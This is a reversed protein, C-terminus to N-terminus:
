SRDLGKLSACHKGRLVSPLSRLLWISARGVHVLDAFKGTLLARISRVPMELAFTSVIILLGSALGFHKLTYLFRSEISYYLRRAQIKRSSGGGIHHAEIESLYLLEKGQARVRRSLDLDELYVFFREDFGSLSRFLDRSMLYYAGIVHDVAQTSDHEWELMGRGRFGPWWREMGLMSGIMGKITPFRACSRQVLGDEGLLRIGVVGVSPRSELAEISAKVTGSPVQTDPNLFLIYESSGLNAGQNCARGFGENRSNEILSIKGSDSIAAQQSGDTSHNDIVIIQAHEQIFADACLSRLCDKLLDGTNWNIIVIDIM